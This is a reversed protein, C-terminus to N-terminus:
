PEGCYCSFLLILSNSTFISRFPSMTCEIQKGSCYYYIIWPMSKFSKLMDVHKLLEYLFLIWLEQLMEGGFFFLLARFMKKLCFLLLETSDYGADDLCRQVFKVLAEM